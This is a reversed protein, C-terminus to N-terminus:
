IWILKMAAVIEDETATLIDTVHNKVFHWTLDKLPVKLGDAIIHGAKFSRAADDANLPEAAYIKINPAITSLTLCTGSIM